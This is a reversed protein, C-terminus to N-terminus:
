MNIIRSLDLRGQTGYSERASRKTAPAKLMQVLSSSRLLADVKTPMQDREKVGATERDGSGVDAKKQAFVFTKRNTVVKARSFPAAGSSLFSTKAQAAAPGEEEQRRAGAAERPVFMRRAKADATPEAPASAAAGRPIISALAESSILPDEAGEGGRSALGRREMEARKREAMRLNRRKYAQEIMEVEGDSLDADDGLMKADFIRELNAEAEGLDEGLEARRRRADRDNGEDEDGAIGKRKKRFGTEVANIFEDLEDDEREREWNQHLKERRKLSGESERVRRNDILDELDAGDDDEDDVEEGNEDEHLHGEDDSLEAEDEVFGRNVKPLKKKGPKSGEVKAKVADGAEAELEDPLPEDEEWTFGNAQEQEEEELEESSSEESSEEEEGESEESSSEDMSQGEEEPEPEKPALRIENPRKREEEEMAEEETAEEAAMAEQEAEEEAAETDEEPVEVAIAGVVDAPPAKLNMIEDAFDSFKLGSEEAGAAEADEEVAPKRAAAEQVRQNIKDLISSMPKIDPNFGKGIREREADAILDRQANADHETEFAVDADDGEPEEEGSAEEDGKPTSVDSAEGAEAEGERQSEGEEASRSLSGEEAGKEMRLFEVLEEPEEEEEPPPDNLGEDWAAFEDVLSTPEAGDAPVMLVEDERDADDAPRESVPVLDEQPAEPAEPPEVANEKGEGLATSTRQSKRKLRRLAKKEAPQGVSITGRGGEIEVGNDELETMAEPDGQSAMERTVSAM